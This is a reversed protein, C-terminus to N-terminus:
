ELTGPLESLATVKTIQSGDGSRSCVRNSRSKRKPQVHNEATRERYGVGRWLKPVIRFVAWEAWQVAAAVLSETRSIFFAPM